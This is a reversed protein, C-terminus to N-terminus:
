KKFALGAKSLADSLKPISAPGMGHLALMEKKSLAALQQLTTIGKNELARRAPAPLDALFGTTPKREEECIPCVPCDSTKFYTHGKACIRKNKM